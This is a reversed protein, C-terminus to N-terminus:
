FHFILTCTFMHIIAWQPKICSFHLKSNSGLFSSTSGLQVCNAIWLHLFMALKNSGTYLLDAVKWMRVQPYKLTTLKGCASAEASHCFAATNPSFGCVRLHSCAFMCFFPAVWTQSDFRCGAPLSM